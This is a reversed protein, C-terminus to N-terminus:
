RHHEAPAGLTDTTPLQVIFRSGRGLGESQAAVTGHHMEVIRRVLSLGIGLGGGSREASHDVQMFLDFIRPLLEPPIGCGTDIVSMKVNSGAREATVRIRGGPDTYKSANIILNCFVQKLRTPDARLCIPEAPLEMSLTQSRREILPRCAEAADNAVSALDLHEMRLELKQSTIRSVDLLDDVLRTLQALQREMTAQMRESVQADGAARKMLELAHTMPALPSRLEHALMALFEDKRRESNRLGQEFRLRSVFNAADRAYLDLLQRDQEPVCYPDAFGVFLMDIVVKGQHAKLPTSLVARFGGETAIARHRVFAADLQVDEIMFQEGSQLTRLILSDDDDVRVYRFYDLVSQHVGRHAVIELGHSEPNFLQVLGFRAGCSAMACDIVDELAPTLESAALLRGSLEHLTRLRQESERLANLAQRRQTVDILAGIVRSPDLEDKIVQGFSEVWLWRGDKHRIRFLRMESGGALLHRAVEIRHAPLDDPHILSYWWDLSLNVDQPRYGTV